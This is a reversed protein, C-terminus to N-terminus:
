GGGQIQSALDKLLPNRPYKRLLEDVVSRARGTLGNLFDTQAARYKTLDESSLVDAGTRRKLVIENQLKQADRNTPNRAISEQLLRLAVEWQIPANVNKRYETNANRYATASRQLDEQSIPPEKLGLRVELASIATSVDSRTSRPVIANWRDLKTYAVLNYFANTVPVVNSSKADALATAIRRLLEKAFQADGLELEDIKLSLLRAERYEPVVALIADVSSRATAIAGQYETGRSGSKLLSAARAQSLEAQVMFGRIDEYIPDTRTIELKGTVLLAGKAREIYVDIQVNRDGTVAVWLDQATELTTIAAQYSSDAYEGLGQNFLTQAEALDQERARAAIRDIIGALETLRTRAAANEQWALSDRYSDRATTYSRLAASYTQQKEEAQGAQFASDGQGRLQTARDAATKAATASLAIENQLEVVRNRFEAQAALLRVIGDSSTVHAPESTWRGQWADIGSLLAGIETLASVYEEGALDPRKGTTIQGEATGAALSRGRSLRAQVAAREAEFGGAELRAIEVALTTDAARGGAVAKLFRERVASARGAMVPLAAAADARNRWDDAYRVGSEDIAALSRRGVRMQALSSGHVSPVAALSRELGAAAELAALEAVAYSEMSQADAIRQRIQGANTALSAARAGADQSLVLGEAEQWAPTEVVILDLALTGRSRAEVALARFQALAVSEAFAGEAATFAEDAADIAADSMQRAAAVWPQRVAWAIGEGTSGQRGLVYWEIFPLWLESSGASGRAADIAEKVGRVELARARLEAERGRTRSLPQLGALFRERGTDTM